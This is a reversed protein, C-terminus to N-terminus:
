NALGELDRQVSRNLIEQRMEMDLYGIVVSFQTNKPM